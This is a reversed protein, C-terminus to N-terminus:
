IQIFPLPDKVKDFVSMLNRVELYEQVVHRLADRKKYIFVNSVLTKSKSSLAAIRAFLKFEDRLHIIGDRIETTLSPLKHALASIQGTTQSDLSDSLNSDVIARLDAVLSEHRLLGSLVKFILARAKLM